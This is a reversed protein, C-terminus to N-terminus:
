NKYNKWVDSLTKNKKDFAKKRENYSNIKNDIKKIAAPTKAKKLKLAILCDIKKGQKFFGKIKDCESTDVASYLNSSFLLFPIILLYKKMTKNKEKKRLNIM